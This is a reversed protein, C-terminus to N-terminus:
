LEVDIALSIQKVFKDLMLPKLLFGKIDFKKIEKEYQKSAYASLLVLPVKTDIERIKEIMQIGTMNPMNIDTIVIDFNSNKFKELGEAGDLAVEINDFFDELMISTSERADMNDEVYLLRLDQTLGILKIIDNM